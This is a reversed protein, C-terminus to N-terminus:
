VLVSLNNIVGTTIYKLTENEYAIQFRRSVEVCRKQPTFGSISLYQSSWFFLLINGGPSRLFTAPKGEHTGCFFRGEENDDPISPALISSAPFIGLILGAFVAAFLRM